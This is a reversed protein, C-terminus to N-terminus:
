EVGYPIGQKERTEGQSCDLGLGSTVVDSLDGVELGLFMLDLM